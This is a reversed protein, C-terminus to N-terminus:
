PQVKKAQEAIAKAIASATRTVDRESAHRSM